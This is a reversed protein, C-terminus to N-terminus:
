ADMAIIDAHSAIVVKILDAGTNTSLSVVFSYIFMPPVSNNSTISNIPNVYLNAKMMPINNSM